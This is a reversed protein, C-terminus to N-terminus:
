QSIIHLSQISFGMEAIHCLVSGLPRQTITLSVPSIVNEGFSQPAPSVGEIANAVSECVARFTNFNDVTAALYGLITFKDIRTIRNQSFPTEEFDPSYIMFGRVAGDSSDKFYGLFVAWDTTMILNDVVVGVGSVGEIITKIAARKQAETQLAAM